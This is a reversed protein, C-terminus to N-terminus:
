IHVVITCYSLYLFHVSTCMYMLRDYLILLATPTYCSTSFFLFEPIAKCPRDMKNTTQFSIYGYKCPKTLTNAILPSTLLLYLHDDPVEDEM